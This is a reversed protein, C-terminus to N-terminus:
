AYFGGVLFALLATLMWILVNKKIKLANEKTSIKIIKYSSLIFGVDTIIVLPIYSLPYVLNYILPIFSLLVAIIFFLAGIKAAIKNGFLRAISKIDKIADGEVDAIGKIIERGTNAIFATISFLAIRLTIEGDSILGGYLFPAAVCLSVIMNGILGTKKLKWNYLFSAIYFFIAIILCIYSIMLSSFLGIITLIFSFLIAEKESIIKSPLPKNPANISDIERDFYDNLVMSSSNLSYATLGGLIINKLFLNKKQSALIGVIVAIIMLLGNISRTMKFLGIIKKRLM